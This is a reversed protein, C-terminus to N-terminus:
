IVSCDCFSIYYSQPQMATVSSLQSTIIRSIIEQKVFVVYVDLLYYHFNQQALLVHHSNIGFVPKRLRFSDKTIESGSPERAQPAFRRMPPYTIKAYLTVCKNSREVLRFSSGRFLTQSFFNIQKCYYRYHVLFKSYKLLTQLTSHSM